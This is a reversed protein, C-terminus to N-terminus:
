KKDSVRTNNRTALVKHIYNDGIVDTSDHTHLAILPETSNIPHGKDLFPLALHRIAQFRM